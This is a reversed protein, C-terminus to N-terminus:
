LTQNRAATIGCYGAVACCALLLTLPLTWSTGHHLAGFAVPGAAAIFYGVTQAMGALQSSAAPSSTRLVILAGALGFGGGQAIGLLVAWVWAGGVPAVLLGAMGAANCGVVLAVLRRQDHVRGALTPIAFAGGIQILNCFAFVAGSGGHSMGEDNLLTPMWAVTTYSILSQMGMFVALRWALPSRWLGPIAHGTPAPAAPASLQVKSGRLQPLWALLSLLALVAWSALSGRWGGFAHAMPVSLAAALTAGTIMSTTYVGTMTAARDPFDRKVLGPMTVNLLAIAAGIVVSGGFLAASGPVVRLLVGLALLALAAGAVRESGFRRVARPGVPAVVGMLLVPLATLLGGAASSLHNSDSVDDLLPSVASLAARMNLSVLLIGVLATAPHAVIRSVRSPPQAAGGGQPASPRRTPAPPAAPLTRSM